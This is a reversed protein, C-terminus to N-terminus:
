RAFTLGVEDNGLVAVTRCVRYRHGELPMVGAERVHCGVESERNSNAYSSSMDLVYAEHNFIGCYSSNTRCNRRSQGALPTRPTKM